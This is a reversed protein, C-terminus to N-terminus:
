LANLEAIRHQVVQAYGAVEEPTYGGARFCDRIQEETLQGLRTGLWKADKRPIHKTIAQMETREHYNPINVAAILPPRSHMVLDVYNEKVKQVFKSDEYDKMRSKSRHIPDGTKGFTAGVDSVVYEAQDNLEYISNNVTKLDWNNVLAMMARLGNFERTGIFPNKTWEWTGLKKIEKMHRELRAGHVIGDQSVFSQGRQLRPLGEVRLADIYYDEDVFYGAAFLLRTAATEARPEQGLKVRWRVGKDDKVDFKPSTGSMDEKDFTYKADPEPADEKGGAGYILNLQNVDITEHWIVAEMRPPPGKVKKHSEDKHKDDKEGEDNQGKNKEAQDKQTQDQPPQEQQTDPNPANDQARASKATGLLLMLLCLLLVGMAKGLMGDHAATSNPSNKRRQIRAKRVKFRIYNRM